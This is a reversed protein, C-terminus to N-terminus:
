LNRKISGTLDDIDDKVKEVENSISETDIGKKDASKKIESKIEQTADKMKRIGKAMGKAVEPIKDAGFVMLIVFFVFIIEAGSIFLPIIM